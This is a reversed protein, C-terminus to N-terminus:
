LFRRWQHLMRGVGTTGIPTYFPIPIVTGDPDLIIGTKKAIEYLLGAEAKQFGFSDFYVKEGKLDSFDECLRNQNEYEESVANSPDINLIDAVEELFEITGSLGYPFSRICPANTVLAFHKSLEGTTDDRIINLCGRGTKKIDDPTINRAFRVNVGLGLLSLLRKIEAFNEDVEYELNKEGIINVLPHKSEGSKEILCSTEKLATIYGKEFSGGLFGSTHVPIVPVGWDNSCIKDVDDGITECICSTIVFVAGPNYELSDKITNKLKEEGGFIIENEQMGSSIIEPIDFCGNYLMTSQFLSSAQHACGDPGHVITAANNVFACVSLAGTVTCGELRSINKHSPNSNM